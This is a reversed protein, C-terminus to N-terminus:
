LLVYISGPLPKQQVLEQAFLKEAHETDEAARLQVRRAIVVPNTNGQSIKSLMPTRAIIYMSERNLVRGATVRTLSEPLDSDAYGCSEYGVPPM